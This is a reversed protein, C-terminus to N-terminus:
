KIYHRKAHVTKISGDKKKVEIRIKNPLEWEKVLNNPIGNVSLITDGFEIEKLIEKGNVFAKESVRNMNNAARFGFTSAPYYYSKDNETRYKKYEAELVQKFYIKQVKESLEEGYGDSLVANLKDLSSM